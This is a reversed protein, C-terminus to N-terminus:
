AIQTVAIGVFTNLQRVINSIKNHKFNQPLILRALEVPDWVVFSEETPGSSIIPDLSRDDVLDFMRMEVKLVLAMVLEMTVSTEEGAFVPLMVTRSWFLTQM